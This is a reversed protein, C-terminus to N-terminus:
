RIVSLPASDEPVRWHFQELIYNYHAANAKQSFDSDRMRSSHSILAAMLEQSLIISIDVPIVM